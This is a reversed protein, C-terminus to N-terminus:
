REDAHEVAAGHDEEDHQGGGRNGHRKEVQQQRRRMRQMHRGIEHRQEAFVDAVRQERERDVQDPAIGADEREAVAREEREAAVGHAHVQHPLDARAADVGM